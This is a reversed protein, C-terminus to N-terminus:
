NRSSVHHLENLHDHCRHDPARTRDRYDRHARAALYQPGCSGIRDARGRLEPYRTKLSKTHPCSRKTTEEQWGIHPAAVYSKALHREFYLSGVFLGCTGVATAHQHIPDPRRHKLPPPLSRDTACLSRASCPRAFTTQAHGRVIAPEFTTVECFEIRKILRAFKTGALIKRLDEMHFRDFRHFCRCVGDALLQVM